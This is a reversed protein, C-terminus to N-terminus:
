GVYDVPSTETIRRGVSVDFACLSVLIVLTKKFMFARTLAPVRVKTAPINRNAGLSFFFRSLGILFFYSRASSVPLCQLSCIRQQSL